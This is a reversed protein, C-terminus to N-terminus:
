KKKWAAREMEGAKYELRGIDVVVPRLEPPMDALKKNMQLHINESASVLALNDPALNDKDGDLFIVCQRGPPMPGNHEEWVVHHKARWVPKGNVTCKVQVYGLQKNFREYGDPKINHPVLGKRFSGKNAKAVGKTGKLWSTCGKRAMSGSKAGIRGLRHHIASETKDMDFARNFARTLQALTMIRYGERLFADHEETYRRVM